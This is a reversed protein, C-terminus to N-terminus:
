CELILQVFRSSLGSSFNVHKFHRLIGVILYSAACLCHQIVRVHVHIATHESALVLVLSTLFIYTVIKFGLLVM